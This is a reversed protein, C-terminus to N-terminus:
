GNNMDRYSGRRAVRVSARGESPRQEQSVSGRRSAAMSARGAEAFSMRRSAREAAGVDYGKTSMGESISARRRAAKSTGAGYTLDKDDPLDKDRMKGKTLLETIDSLSMRRNKAREAKQELKTLREEDKIVQNVAWDPHAVGVDTARRSKQELETQRRSKNKIELQHFAEDAEDDEEAPAVKKNLRHSLAMFASFGVVLSVGYVYWLAFALTGWGIKLIGLPVQVFIAFLVFVKGVFSHLRFFFPSHWTKAGYILNFWGLMPQFLLMSFLIYGMISHVSNGQKGSINLPAIGSSVLIIACIILLYAISVFFVHAALAKPWKHLYNHNEPNKKHAKSGVPPTSMYKVGIAIGIGIPGFAGIAVSMMQSHVKLVDRRCWKNKASLSDVDGISGSPSGDPCGAATPVQQCIFDKVQSLRVFGANQCAGLSQDESTFTPRVMM